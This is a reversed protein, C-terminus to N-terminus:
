ARVERGFLGQPKFLLIIVIVFLMIAQTETGSVMIPLFADM